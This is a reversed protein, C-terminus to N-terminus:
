ERWDTKHTLEDEWRRGNLYTTPYPIYRGDDKTWEDSSKSQAVAGIIQEVLAHNPQLKEWADLAKKKAVKRPYASWFLNFSQEYIHKDKKNKNTTNGAQERNTEQKDGAQKKSDESLKIFKFKVTEQTNRAQETKTGQENRIFGFTKKLSWGWIRAYERYGKKTGHFIDVQYSFVAEILTYPRKRPLASVLSLDM